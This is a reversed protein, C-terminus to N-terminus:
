ADQTSRSVIAVVREFWPEILASSTRNMNYRFQLYLRGDFTFLHYVLSFPDIRGATWNETIRIEAGTDGAHGNATNSTQVPYRAPLVTKLDGLSSMFPMAPRGALKANYSETIMPRYMPLFHWFYPSKVFADNQKKFQKAVEWISEQSENGTAVSRPVRLMVPYLEIRVAVELDSSTIGGPHQPIKATIDMPQSFDFYLADDDDDNVSKDHVSSLAGAINVLHTITVGHAKCARLIRATEESSWVKRLIRPTLAAAPTGDAVIGSMPKKAYQNVLEDFVIKAQRAEEADDGLQPKLHETPVPIPVPAAKAAFHCGIALLELFRRMLNLRRRNDTVFHTTILGFVYKGSQPDADRGWWLACTRERIDLPQEQDHFTHFEVQAKASQLARALTAPANVLFHPGSLFTVNSALLPYRPAIGRLRPYKTTPSPTDITSPDTMGGGRRSAAYMLEGISLPRSSALAAEPIYARYFGDTCVRREASSLWFSAM